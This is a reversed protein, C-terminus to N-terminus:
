DSPPSGPSHRARWEDKTLQEVASFRSDYSVGNYIYTLRGTAPDASERIAEMSPPLSSSSSARDPMRMAEQQTGFERRLEDRLSGLEERMLNSNELIQALAVFVAASILGSLLFALGLFGESVGFWCWITLALGALLELVAIVRLTTPM